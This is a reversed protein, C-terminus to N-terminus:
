SAHIFKHLKTDNVWIVQNFWKTVKEIKVLELTFISFDHLNLNNFLLSNFFFM